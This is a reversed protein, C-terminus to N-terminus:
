VSTSVMMWSNGGAPLGKPPEGMGPYQSTRLEFDGKAREIAGVASTSWFHMAVEGAAFPKGADRIALNLMKCGRFLKKM